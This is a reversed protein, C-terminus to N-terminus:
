GVFGLIEFVGLVGEWFFGGDGLLAPGFICSFSFTTTCPIMRWDGWGAVWLRFGVDKAKGDSGGVAWFVCFGLYFYICVSFSFSFVCGYGTSPIPIM